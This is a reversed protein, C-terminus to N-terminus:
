RVLNVHGVFQKEEGEWTRLTIIYSYVGLQAQMGKYTGDWGMDGEGEFIQEGWRNFVLLRHDTYGEGLGRFLDNRGNSNPTFTNPIYFTFAPSVTVKGMATDTCGYGTTVLLTIHYTGTDRYTYSFDTDSARQGDGLQWDHTTVNASSLDTLAVTPNVLNVKDPRVTFAAEPLPFVVVQSFATDPSSCGQASTVHLSVQLTDPTIGDAGNYAFTRVPSQETASIDEGLAWHWQNVAYPPAITSADWFVVELPECGAAPLVSFAPQPLAFVEVQATAADSCGNNTVATLTVTQVGHTSYVHSAEPSAYATGDGMEWSHQVIVDGWQQQVASAQSFLVTETLCHDGSTVIVAEPLPHVMAVTIFTDAKCGAMNTVTLLAGQPGPQAFLVQPSQQASTQGDGFVWGWQTLPYAADFTSLDTFQVIGGLCVSDATFDAMPLPHIVVTSASSDICGNNSWVTLTIDYVGASPFTQAPPQQQNSTAGNGFTWQWAAVNGSSVASADNVTLPDDICTNTVAIGAVPSPHNTLVTILLSDCGEPTVLTDNYTGPVSKWYGGTFVSDEPCITEQLTHTIIPEIFLQTIIVSDCGLVTALTDYYLGAMNQAAGQAFYSQGLCISVPVTVVPSPNVTLVTTIISDCGNVTQFTEPYSGALTVLTGSPLTHTEGDCIVADVVIDYVPYVVLDTTIVSDCGNVTQVTDIYTGATGTVVGSPLTLTEGECIEVTASSQEATFLEILVATGADECGYNDTVSYAYSGQGLNYVSLDSSSIPAEWSVNYPPLGGTVNLEASGDTAGPCGPHMVQVVVTMSPLTISIADLFNGVAPNGGAASVSNFRLSYNVQPIAPFTYSVTYYQWATNGTSFTGLDTYPGGPPGISVNLVDVGSRGRHAFALDVTSGPIAVFDQFITSVMNANLEIFQNGSYAPVGNFGSGWVEIRQDSATTSWCPIASQNVITFNGPAIVQTDEFDTNCILDCGIDPTCDIATVITTVTSDCGQASVLVSQYTGGQTVVIGDPLTYPDGECINISQQSTPTTLVTVMVDDTALCGNTDTGTVSFTTTNGATFTPAATSADDLGIAPSWQYTQAGTASLQLTGDPCVSADAGASVLPLPLITVVTDWSASCGTADTVTLTYTGNNAASANPVSANQGTATYGGPGAWSFTVSTPSNWVASLTITGSPCPTNFTFSPTDIPSWPTTSENLSLGGQFAGAQGSTAGHSNGHYNSFGAQGGAWSINFQPAAGNSLLVGGGGGGGPGESGAISGGAGGSIEVQVANPVSNALVAITGAAGGGGGGDGSSFVANVGNSKIIGGGTLSNARFVVIGGGDGGPIFAGNNQHGGGGGGGLFLRQSGYSSMSIGGIGGTNTNNACGPWAHGGDGGAGYGGGGAGGANHKNGGGGGNALKGRGADSTSTYILVGEGKFGGLGNNSPVAFDYINCGGGGLSFAGHRFGRGSVDIDGNLTVMGSAEFVLVGGVTGDWPQCTLTDTVTMDTYQPVTILQVLGSVTYSNLLTNTFQIDNGNVAAIEVFEYNGADGLDTINGFAATNSLDITAGKMQIILARDGVAFPMANGVTVSNNCPDFATVPTYENIITEQSPCSPVVITTDQFSCQNRVRITHSGPALGTFTNSALWTTGANISYEFPGEAPDPNVTVSTNNQGNCSTGSMNVSFIDFADLLPDDYNAFLNDVETQSLAYNFLMVDDIKGNFPYWITASGFMRGIWFDNVNAQSFDAPNGVVENMLVGNVYLRLVTNNVTAVFHVWECPDFCPIGTGGSFNTPTNGATNKNHFGISLVGNADTNSTNWIGRNAAYGDGAKSCIVHNGNAVYNGWGDMGDFQCQQYWLSVSMQSTFTLTPSNPVQIWNKNYFGGFEFASNATGFRDSTLVPNNSEGGLIGHNNNGSVDNANGNFPLHMVPTQAVSVLACLSLVGQLVSRKMPFAVMDQFVKEVKKELEKAQANLDDAEAVKPGNDTWNADLLTKLPSAAGDDEHKKLIKKALALLKEPSKSIVIRAM